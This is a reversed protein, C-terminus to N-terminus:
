RRGGGRSRAVIVAYVTLWVGLMVLAAPRGGMDLAARVFCIGGAWFLLDDMYLCLVRGAGRLKRVVRNLKGSAKDELSFGGIRQSYMIM